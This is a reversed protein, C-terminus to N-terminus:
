PVKSVKYSGYITLPCRTNMSVHQSDSSSLALMSTKTSAISEAAEACHARMVWSNLPAAERTGASAVAKAEAAVVHHDLDEGGEDIPRVLFLLLPMALPRSGRTLSEGRSCKGACIRIKEERVIRVSYRLAITGIGSPQDGGFPM